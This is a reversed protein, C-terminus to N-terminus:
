RGPSLKTADILLNLGYRDGMLRVLWRPYIRWATKYVPSSYKSSPKLTLLDGLSLKAAVEIRSFGVEGLFSRAEELTYAKTGPSELHSFIAQKMTLNPNGRALGYRLYLMLGGWSPVHYIMAKVVGGPKLVRFVEEFAKRTNPTHHLVGWSYVLDFSNDEFPLNEADGTLLTYKEQSISNLGMRERTLSIASETLDVGTVHSAHECWNQFDAGAGVGIELVSKGRASQFDAFPLIYPELTYRAASIED